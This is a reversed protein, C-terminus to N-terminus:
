RMVDGSAYACATLATKSYTTAGGETLTVKVKLGCTGTVKNTAAADNAAFTWNLANAWLGVKAIGLKQPSLELKCTITTASPTCTGCAGSCKVPATTSFTHGPVEITMGDAPYGCDLSVSAVANGGLALGGAVGGLDSTGGTSSGGLVGAATVIPCYNPKAQPKAALANAALCAAVLACASVGLM